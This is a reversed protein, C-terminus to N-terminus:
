DSMYSLLGNDRYSYYGDPEIILHDLLTISIGSAASILRINYLLDTKNAMYRERSHSVLVISLCEHRLAVQLLTKINGFGTNVSGIKQAHRLANSEDFLLLWYTDKEAEVIHKAIQYTQRSNGVIYKCNGPKKRNYYNNSPENLQFVTVQSIQYM